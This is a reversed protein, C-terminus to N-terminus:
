REWEKPVIPLLNDQLFKVKDPQISSLMLRYEPTHHWRAFCYTTQKVLKLARKTKRKLLQNSCIFQWFWSELSLLDNISYDYREQREWKNQVFIRGDSYDIIKNNKGRPKWGMDILGNLYSELRENM